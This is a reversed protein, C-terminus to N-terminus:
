LEDEEDAPRIKQSALKKWLSLVESPVGGARLREDVTSPDRQLQPFALLLM